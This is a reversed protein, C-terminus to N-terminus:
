LGIRWVLIMRRIRDSGPPSRHVTPVVTPFMRRRKEGSVLTLFGRDAKIIKGSNGKTMLETGHEGDLLLTATVQNGDPHWYEASTGGTLDSVRVDVQNPPSFERPLSAKILESVWDNLLQFAERVKMSHLFQPNASSRNEFLITGVEPSVIDSVLNFSHAIPFQDYFRAFVEEPLYSRLDLLAYGKGAKPDLDKKIQNVLFNWDPSGPRPLRSFVIYVAEAESTRGLAEILDKVKRVSERAINLRPLQFLDRCIDIAQVDLTFM